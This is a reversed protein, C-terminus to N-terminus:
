SISFPSLEASKSFTATGTNGAHDLDTVTLNIEFSGTKLVEVMCRDNTPTLKVVGADPDKLSWAYNLRSPKVSGSEPTVVATLTFSNGVIPNDNDSRISAQFDYTPASEKVTITHSSSTVTNGGHEAKLIVKLTGSSNPAKLNLSPGGSHATKDPVDSFGNYTAFWTYTVGTVDAPVPVATLTLTEGAAMEDKLGSISVGTLTPAVPASTVRVEWTVTFTTPATGSPAGTQEYGITRQISVLGAQNATIQCAGGTTSLTLTNPDGSSITWDPAQWSGDTNGYALTYSNGGEDQPIFPEITVTEGVKLELPSGTPITTTSGTIGLKVSFPPPANGDAAWAAPMAGLTLVLSLILSLTRRTISTKM